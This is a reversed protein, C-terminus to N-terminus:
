GKAGRSPARRWVKVLRLFLCFPVNTNGQWDFVADTAEQDGGLLLVTVEERKGGIVETTGRHGWALNCTGLTYVCMDMNALIPKSFAGCCNCRGDLPLSGVQPIQVIELVDIRSEQGLPGLARVARDGGLFEHLGSRENKGLSRRSGGDM